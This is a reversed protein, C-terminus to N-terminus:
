SYKIQVGKEILRSIDEDRLQGKSVYLEKLSELNYLVSCDISKLNFM